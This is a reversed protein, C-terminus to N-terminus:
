DNAFVIERQHEPNEAVPSSVGLQEKVWPLLCRAALAHGEVTWHRDIPFYLTQGQKEAEEQMDLFTPLLDIFPVDLSACLDRMQDRPRTSVGRHMEELSPFFAVAFRSGNGRVEAAMEKIIAATVQWEPRASDYEPYNASSGGEDMGGHLSDRVLVYLQSHDRLFRKAKAMTGGHPGLPELSSPDSLLSDPVPVHTLVLEGHQVEFRPKPRWGKPTRIALAGNRKACKVFYGLVVLDASFQAGQERYHLLEQDTGTGSVGFNLIEVEPWDHQILDTYRHPADVGHGFTFSDGLFLVRPVGPTRAVPIERDMRLGAHNIRVPVDYEKAAMHTNANPVLAFGRTPHYEMFPGEVQASAEIRSTALSSEVRVLLEGLFLAFVIGMALGLLTSFTKRM